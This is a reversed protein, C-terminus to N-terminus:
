VRAAIAGQLRETSLDAFVPNSEAAFPRRGLEIAAVSATAAGAFPEWIVDGPETSAQILRKMLEIPKQHPHMVATTAGPPTRAFRESDKLLPQAWVNSLGTESDHHAAPLTPGAPDPTTPRRRYMACVETVVTFVAGPWAVAGRPGKDWIVTEVHDWGAQDLASHVIAWGIETNWLWLTTDPTAAASWAAIHERYWSLLAPAEVTDGPTDGRIGYAGDSIIAAPAPWHPYAETVPGRHLAFLAPDSNSM